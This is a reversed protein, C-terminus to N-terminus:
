RAGRHDPRSDPPPPGSLVDVLRTLELLRRAVPSPCVVLLSLGRQAAVNHAMVVASIGRCDLFTVRSMDVHITPHAAQICKHLAAHLLPATALDLEEPAHVVAVGQASPPGAPPLTQSM